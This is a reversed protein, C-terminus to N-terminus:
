TGHFYHNGWRLQMQEFVAARALYDWLSLEFVM